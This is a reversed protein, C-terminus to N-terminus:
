RAFRVTVTTGGGRDLSVQGHLKKAFAAILQLGLSDSNHLTMGPPLGIGDDAV